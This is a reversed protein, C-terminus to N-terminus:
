VTLLGIECAANNCIHNINSPASNVDGGVTVFTYSLSSSIRVNHADMRSGGVRERMSPTHLNLSSSCDQKGGVVLCSGHLHVRACLHDDFLCRHLM